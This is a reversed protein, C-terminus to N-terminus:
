IIKFNESYLVQLIRFFVPSNWKNQQSLTQLTSSHDKTSQKWRSNLNRSIYHCTIIVNRCVFLQPSRKIAKQAMKKKKKKRNLISIYIRVRCTTFRLQIEYIIGDNLCEVKWNETNEYKGYREWLICFLLYFSFIFASTNVVSYCM